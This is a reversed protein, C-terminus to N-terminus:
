TRNWLFLDDLTVNSISLRTNDTVIVLKKQDPDFDIQSIYEGKMEKKIKRTFEEPTM